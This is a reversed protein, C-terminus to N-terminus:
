SNNYHDPLYSLILNKANKIQFSKKNLYNLFGADSSFNFIIKYSILVQYSLNLQRNLNPNGYKTDGILPHNLYSFHARIQHTRGTLLEVNILSFNDFTELVEYKTIATKANPVPYDFLFVKNKEGNKLLYHKLIGNTQEMHGSILCLYFKRIQHNKLKKNLIRLSQANKAAIVIGQTNRDIRNVLSPVFSLEDDPNFQHNVFLYHKIRNILTDIKENNDDHVILGSPKNILLINEDEYIIDLNTPANFFYKKPNHLLFEDNIYLSIIDGVALIDSFHCRKNNIKIRKKRISKYIISNPLNPFSKSLFKDLRQGADNKKIIKTQLNFCRM